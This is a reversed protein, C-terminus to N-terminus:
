LHYDTCSNLFYTFLYICMELDLDKNLIKFVHSIEFDSYGSLQFEVWESTAPVKSSLILIRQTRSVNFVHDSVILSFETPCSCVLQSHFTTCLQSQPSGTLFGVGLLPMASLWSCKWAADIPLQPSCLDSSDYRVAKVNFCLVAGKLAMHPECNLNLFAPCKPVQIPPFLTSPFVPFAVM